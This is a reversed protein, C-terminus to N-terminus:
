SALEPKGDLIDLLRRVLEAITDCRYPRCRDKSGALTSARMAHTGTKESSVKPLEQMPVVWSQGIRVNEVDILVALLVSGYHTSYTKKRVNFEVHGPTAADTGTRGKV